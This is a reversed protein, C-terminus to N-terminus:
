WGGSAGGGGSGFGGGGGFGGFSGGGGSGFGGGFSSGGRRRPGSSLLGWLLVDSGSLTRKGGGHKGGRGRSILVIIVIIIFIIVDIPISGGDNNRSRSVGEFEGAALEIMIDTARDIGGYFNENRFEPKLVDNLIRSSMADTIVGELGYGVEIKFARDGESILLLVGNDREGSQGEWLKWKSFTLTAVEEISNGELSEVTAIAFVNSTTDRYNRLKQELRNVESSSLMNAYDNVFGRPNDPLIDQAFVNVSIFLAIFFLGLKRMQVVEM